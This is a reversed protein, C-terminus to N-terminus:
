HDARHDVSEAALFVFIAEKWTNYVARGPPTLAERLRARTGVKGAQFGSSDTIAILPHDIALFCPRCEALVSVPAEEEAACVRSDFLLFADGENEHFHVRWAHFNTRDDHGIAAVFHIFDPQCVDANRDVIEDAFLVLAPSVGFEQESM